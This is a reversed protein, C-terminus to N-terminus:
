SRRTPTMRTRSSRRDAPIAIRLALCLIRPRAANCLAVFGATHWRVHMGDASVKHEAAIPVIERVLLRLRSRRDWPDIGVSNVRMLVYAAGEVEPVAFLQERLQEEHEELMSLTVSM